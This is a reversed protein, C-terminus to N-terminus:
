RVGLAKQWRIPTYGFCRKSGCDCFVNHIREPQYPIDYEAPTSALNILYALIAYM